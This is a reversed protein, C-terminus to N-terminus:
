CYCCCCLQYSDHCCYVAHAIRATAVAVAAAAAAAAASNTVTMVATSLM